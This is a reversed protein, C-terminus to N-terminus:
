RGADPIHTYEDCVDLWYTYTQPMFIPPDVSILTQTFMVQQEQHWRACTHTQRGCSECGILLACCLILSRM